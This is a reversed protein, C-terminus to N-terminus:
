LKTDKTGQHNLERDRAIRPEPRRVLWRADPKKDDDKCRPIIRMVSVM